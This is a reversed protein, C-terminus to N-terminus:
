EQWSGLRVSGSRMTTSCFWREFKYSWSKWVKQVEDHSGELVGPKGFGEVDLTGPPRVSEKFGSALRELEESADQAIHGQGQQLQLLIQALM